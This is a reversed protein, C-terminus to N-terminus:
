SDSRLRSTRNPYPRGMQEPRVLPLHKIERDCHGPRPSSGEDSARGKATACGSPRKVAVWMVRGVYVAAGAAVSLAIFDEAGM